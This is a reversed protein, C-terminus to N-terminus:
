GNKVEMKKLEDASVLKSEPEGAGRKETIRIRKRNHNKTKGM